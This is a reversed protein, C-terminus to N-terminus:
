CLVCASLTYLQCATQLPCQFASEGGSDPQLVHHRGACFVVNQKGKVATMGAIGQVIPLTLTMSKMILLLILAQQLYPLGLLECQM